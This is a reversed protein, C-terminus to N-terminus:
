SSKLKVICWVAMAMHLLVAPWLVIGLLQLGLAAYLIILVVGINYVLMAVVLGRTFHSQWCRRSLWCAIGLALIAMGFVRALTSELPTNLSSGLLLDVPLSPFILLALGVGFELIASVSLLNKM